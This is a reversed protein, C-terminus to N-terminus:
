DIMFDFCIHTGHIKTLDRDIRHNNLQGDKYSLEVNFTEQRISLKANFKTAQERSSKFGLGRAGGFRSINGKSFTERVLGIDSEVNEHGFAEYLKPYNLMLSPRLTASVGLGSDSIVTQIHKPMHTPAYYQLAAFGEIASESHESVNGILESFITLAVIEYSESSKIVFCKGLNVILAKNTSKPDISGFEVLSESSGRHKQALSETPRSPLVTIQENLHDFFGARNLYNRTEDCECMDISVTINRQMLQNVLALFKAIAELLL